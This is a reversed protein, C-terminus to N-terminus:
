LLLWWAECVVGCGCSWADELGCVQGAIGDMALLHDVVFGRTPSCDEFEEERM